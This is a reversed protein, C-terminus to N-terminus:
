HQPPGRSRWNHSVADYRPRVVEVIAIISVTMLVLLPMLWAPAVFQGAQMIQQCIPCNAPDDNGPYNDHAPAGGSKLQTSSVASKEIHIHTQTAYGQLLFALFMFAVIALRGAPQQWIFRAKGSVAGNMRECIM